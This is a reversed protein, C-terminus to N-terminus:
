TSSAVSARARAPRESHYPDALWQSLRPCTNREVGPRSAPPAVINRGGQSFLGHVRRRGVGDLRCVGSVAGARRVWPM